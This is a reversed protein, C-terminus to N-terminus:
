IFGGCLALAVRRKAFFIEITKALWVTWTVVSAFALGMLVVKGADMRRLDAQVVAKISCRPVVSSTKHQSFRAAVILRARISRSLRRERDVGGRYRRVPPGEVPITLLM